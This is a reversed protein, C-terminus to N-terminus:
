ILISRGSKTIRHYASGLFRMTELGMEVATAAAEAAPRGSPAAAAGGGGGGAFSMVTLTSPPTAKELYQCVVNGASAAEKSGEGLRPKSLTPEGGVEVPPKCDLFLM